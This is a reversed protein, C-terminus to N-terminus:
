ARIAEPNALRRLPLMLDGALLGREGGEEAALDAARAHMCAGLSAADVTSLGQAVLSAIVGTLVDGMGGSAMGPNGGDCLGIDYEQDCILTGLGKLLCVGGYRRQIDRVAMFRDAQIERTSCGLLRAAEGPHPTLVWEERLMPSRALLNLADADVVKVHPYVLLTSLMMKAWANRGLGPGVAVVSARELLPMLDDVSEVAHCMAEPLMADLFAAHSKRTAVSVLGAGTRLAASAALYVAGLMGSGGGVVLVHGFMGKHANRPRPPLLFGLDDYGFRIASTRLSSYAAQPVELDSFSLKGSCAPGEATLLGQKLALFCVTLEAMIAAGLIQGTDAHLGSPIDVAIVPIRSANVDAVVDAWIGDLPRNLGSGFMADVIVDAHAFVDRRYGEIPCQVARMDTFAQGADGRPEIEVPHVVRVDLGAERALRAVVYGDGGNNGPGCLVVISRAHPWTQKLATFTAQGARRMLTIGPVQFYDIVLRDLIGAQDARYLTHPLPSM